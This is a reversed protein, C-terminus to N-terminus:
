RENQKWDNPLEARKMLVRRTDEATRKLLELLRSTLEVQKARLRHEEPRRTENTLM